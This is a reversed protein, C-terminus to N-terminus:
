PNERLLLLYDLFRGFPRACENKSLTPLQSQEFNVDHHGRDPESTLTWIKIKWKEQSKRASLLYDLFRGFPRARENKSMTPLQSQEFKVDHHGRDPESTLLRFKSNGNKM